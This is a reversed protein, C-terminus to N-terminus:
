RKKYISNIHECLSSLDFMIKNENIGITNLRNMLNLRLNKDIEIYTICEEELDGKKVMREFAGFQSEIVFLGQQLMIRKNAYNPEFIFLSDKNSEGMFKFHKEILNSFSGDGMDLTSLFVDNPKFDISKFKTKKLIILKYKNNDPTSNRNLAFFLAIYPNSTFDFLRTKLGYHQALALFESANKSFAFVGSYKEFERLLKIESDVLEAREIGSKFEEDKSIGRFIYENNNLKDLYKFLKNVNNFYKKKENKSDAIKM